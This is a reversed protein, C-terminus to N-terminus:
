SDWRNMQTTPHPVGPILGELKPLYTAVFQNHLEDSGYFYCALHMRKESYLSEGKSCNESQVPDLKLWPEVTLRAFLPDQSHQTDLYFTQWANMIDVANDVTVESYEIRFSTYIAGPGEAKPLSTMTLSGRPISSAVAQSLIENM